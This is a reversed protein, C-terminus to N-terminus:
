RLRAVSTRKKVIDSLQINCQEDSALSVTHTDTGIERVLVAHRKEMKRACVCVCVERVRDRERKRERRERRERERDEYVTVSVNSGGNVQM